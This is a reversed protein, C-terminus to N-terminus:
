LSGVTPEQEAGPPLPRHVRRNLVRCLVDPRDTVLGDVGWDYLRHMDSEHNVTWVHVPIGQDHLAKVFKQTVIRRSGHHEPVQVVDANLSWYKGLRMAFFRYFETVQESSASIPGGYGGFLTRDRDYMGAVIVRDAANFKAIAEFLPKQAAGTKVEVILPIDPVAELVDEITPITVGKGRFPYTRKYDATFHYGADLERLEAYTLDAVRGTGNTTRDVTPDHIVVCRGDKTAHVDLEIMDAQWLDVAQRFADMTNEPALGAGGRHAILLPTKQLAAPTQRRTAGKLSFGALLAAFSLEM